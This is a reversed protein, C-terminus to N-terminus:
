LFGQWAVPLHGGAPLERLTYQLRAWPCVKGPGSQAWPLTRAVDAGVAPCSPRGAGASSRSPHVLAKDLRCCLKIEGEAWDKEEM